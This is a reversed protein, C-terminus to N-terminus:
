LITESEILRRIAQLAHEYGSLRGAIRDLQGRLLGELQPVLNAALSKDYAKKWEHKDLSAVSIHFVCGRVIDIWQAAGIERIVDDVVADTENCGRLFSRVARVEPELFALIEDLTTRPMSEPASRIVESSVVEWESAWRHIPGVHVFAFRRTLAYSLRNLFHKDYTNLTGIIRFSRPIPLVARPDNERYQHLHLTHFTDWEHDTPEAKVPELCTFMEGLASDIDCRNLEDIVLWHATEESEKLRAYCTRIAQVIFGDYPVFEPEKDPGTSAYRFGGITDSTSWTGSATTRLTSCNFLEAVKMALLTKGTGPPGCIIVSKGSVLNAVLDVVTDRDFSTVTDLGKKLTVPIRKLEDVDPPILELDFVTAEETARPSALMRKPGLESVSPFGFVHYDSRGQQKIFVMFDGEKLLLRLAKLDEEYCLHLTPNNGSEPNLLRRRIQMQDPMWEPYADQGGLSRLNEANMWVGVKNRWREFTENFTLTPFFDETKSLGAIPSGSDTLVIQTAHSVGAQTKILSDTNTLKIILVAVIRDWNFHEAEPVYDLLERLKTIMSTFESM